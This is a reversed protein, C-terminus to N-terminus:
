TPFEPLTSSAELQPGSKPTKTETSVHGLIIM